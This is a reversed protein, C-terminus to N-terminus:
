DAFIEYLEYLKYIIKDKLLYNCRKKFIIERLEVWRKKLNENWGKEFNEELEIVKVAEMLKYKEMKRDKLLVSFDNELGTLAEVLEDIKIERKQLLVDLKNEYHKVVEILCKELRKKSFDELAKEDNVLSKILDNTLSERSSGVLVDIFKEQKKSLAKEEKYKSEMENLLNKYKTIEQEHINRDVYTKENLKTLSM